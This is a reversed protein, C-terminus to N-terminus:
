RPLEDTLRAVADISPQDILWQQLVEAVVDLGHQKSKSGWGLLKRRVELSLKWSGADRDQLTVIVDYRNGARKLEFAHGNYTTWPFEGLVLLEGDCPAGSLGAALKSALALGPPIPLEYHDPVKARPDREPDAFDLSTFTFNLM